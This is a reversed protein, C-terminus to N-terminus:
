AVTHVMSRPQQLREDDHDPLDLLRALPALQAEWRHHEEAYQRGARGLRARRSPSDLLSDIERVWEQPDRALRLHVGDEVALGEAAQPSTVVAKGMALAEIVKNQLGRAVQLPVVVLATRMLYPRVDPVPGILTVGPLEGLRRAAASPNSGVLAFTADPRRRRIEPWVRECFWRAGDVNAKYDLAGVFVCSPAPSESAIEFGDESFPVPVTQESVQAFQALGRRNQARGNSDAPEYRDPDFYELDVGNAVAHIRDSPCFSCYLDAEAQSVLTVARARDPLSCELKRLRRGECRYMARKIGSAGAAYDLWKQSDVDVLDVLAPVGRLPAVNLYQVMSSCFAVVAGFRTGGAWSKVTRALDRSRYLGETATRGCALSMAGSVWRGYPRLRAWAVRACIAELAERTSEPPEEEALFALHVEAREALFRIMHYSRIRDGRNPPYPTRHALFLISHKSTM